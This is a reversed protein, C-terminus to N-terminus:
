TRRLALVVTNDEAARRFVPELGASAAEAELEGAEFTHTYSYSRRRSRNEWVLDGPELRWDSRCVAGMLRGLAIAGRRARVSSSAHSVLIHGGSELLGAAKRLAEVRRRAEPIFAYCYYSFILADFRDPLPTDEFFGELLTASLERERLLRGAIRLAREAPDIGTMRCGREALAVLDRGSGCGVLLVRSGPPVFRAVLDDEWPMLGPHCASNGDYFEQWTERIDRKMDSLQLTGVALYHSLAAVRDATRGAHFLGGAVARRLVGM